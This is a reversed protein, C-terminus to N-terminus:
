KRRAVEIIPPLISLIIIAVVIYSFHDKVAPLNGFWYSLYLLCGVWLVAGLINYIYFQRYGMYGVGAVFPAFTRIIPIFRALIITKGGYREYFQHAKILYNKNFFWSQSSSFINPGILRGFFYNLGNGTISAAVLLIFLLHINLASSTAAIAGSAFLLSDGPLFPTIVLGTECFVIAFLLAYTWVGYTTVFVALHTDIHLLYNFLHQLTDMM